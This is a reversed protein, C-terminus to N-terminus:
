LFEAQSFWGADRAHIDLQVRCGRTGGSGPQKLDIQVVCNRLEALSPNFGLVCHAIFNTRMWKTRGPKDM